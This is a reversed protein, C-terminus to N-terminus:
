QPNHAAPSEGKLRESHRGLPALFWALNHLCRQLMVCKCASCSSLSNSSFKVLMCLARAKIGLRGSHQPACKTFSASLLDLKPIVGQQGRPMNTSYILFDESFQIPLVVQLLASPIFPHMRSLSYITVLVPSCVPLSPVNSM